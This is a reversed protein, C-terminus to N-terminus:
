IPLPPLHSFFPVVPMVHLVARKLDWTRAEESLLRMRHEGGTYVSATGHTQTGLIHLPKTQFFLLNTRIEFSM